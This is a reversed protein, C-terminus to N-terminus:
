PLRTSALLVLVFIALFFIYRWHEIVVIRRATICSCTDASWEVGVLERNVDSGDDPPRPLSLSRRYKVSTGEFLASGRSFLLAHSVVNPFGMIIKPKCCSIFFLPQTSYASKTDLVWAGFLLPLAFASKRKKCRSELKSVREEVTLSLRARKQVLQMVLSKFFRAQKTNFADIITTVIIVRYLLYKKGKNVYTCPYIRRIAPQEGTYRLATPRTALIWCICSSFRSEFEKPVTISSKIYPQNEM